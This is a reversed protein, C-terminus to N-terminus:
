ILQRWATAEGKETLVMFKWNRDLCYQEAAKWKSINTGWTKVEEVYRKTLRKSRKPEISQSMPKIEILTVGDEKKVWFDVFYRHKKGDILSRYPVVVEESSWQIIDPHADCERMFKLEWSSRYIIATYDGRYKHPNSPKFKGKNGKYAM